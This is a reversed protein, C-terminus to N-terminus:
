LVKINRYTLAGVKLVAAIPPGIVTTKSLAPFFVSLNLGEPILTSRLSKRMHSMWNELIRNWGLKLVMLSTSGGMWLFFDAVYFGGLIEQTERLTEHLRSKKSKDEGYDYKKSFAVHCVINYALLLTSESLNISGLLVAISDLMLAVEEDRM